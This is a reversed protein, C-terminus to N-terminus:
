RTFAPKPSIEKKPPVLPEISSGLTGNSSRLEDLVAM